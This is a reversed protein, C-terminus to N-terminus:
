SIRRALICFHIAMGEELHDKWVLFQIWAQQMSPSNKVVSGGAFSKFSWVLNETIQFTHFHSIPRLHFFYFLIWMPYETWNRQETERIRQSGWPSCCVLRGQGDCEQLNSLNMDIRDTIGNLLRMKQQGRRKKGEIKGLMLTKEFSDTRQMLHSFYQLKLKLMLRRIFTWFQNGKPHVPQIEKCDLPGELTKELM